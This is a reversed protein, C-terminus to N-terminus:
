AGTAFIDICVDVATQVTADSAGTINGIQTDKNQALLAWLLEQAKGEPNSFADKAWLMRNAHNDTAPTENRIAEAAVIVAIKVKNRLASETSGVQMLEEYAAM